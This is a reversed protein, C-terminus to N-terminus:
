NSDVGPALDVVISNAHIIEFSSFRIDAYGTSNFYVFGDPSTM